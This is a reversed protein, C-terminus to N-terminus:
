CTASAVHHVDSVFFISTLLSKTNIGSQNPGHSTERKLPKEAPEHLTVLTRSRYFPKRNGVHPEHLITKQLWCSDVNRTGNRADSSTIATIIERGRGKGRGGM